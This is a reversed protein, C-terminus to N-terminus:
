ANGPYQLCKLVNSTVFFPLMLSFFDISERFTAFPTNSEARKALGKQCHEELWGVSPSSPEHFLLVKVRLFIDFFRLFSDTCLDSTTFDLYVEKYPCNLVYVPAYM